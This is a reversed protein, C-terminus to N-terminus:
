RRKPLLLVIAGRLKWSPATEPHVAFGGFGVQYSAPLTGFSSVKSVVVNIPVTWQEDAAKFNGTSESQLTLTLAKKTTFALFPQVFMQNVDERKANGSFSWVQNWLAGYTWQGAQKLAVITPGASWKETGLTPETTSPLSIVPGAGWTFSSGTRPSFFFSTLIDSVGSAAAGGEFLPPQSVLPVIVRAILNWKPTLAFPMVPQINLIFRTQKDPGVNQEWNFQFPVSVLDSIPNSLKKALEADDGVGAGAPQAPSSQAFVPASVCLALCVVAIARGPMSTTM